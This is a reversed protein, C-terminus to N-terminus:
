NIFTAIAFPWSIFAICLLIFNTKALRAGPKGHYLKRYRLGEIITGILVLTCVALVSAPGTDSFFEDRNLMLHFFTYILALNLLVQIWIPWVPRPRLHAPLRNRKGEARRELWRTVTPVHRKLSSQDM